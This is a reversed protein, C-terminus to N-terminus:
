GVTRGGRGHLPGVGADRLDTEVALELHALTEVAAHVLLLQHSCRENAVISPQNRSLERFPRWRRGNLRMGCGDGCRRPILIGSWKGMTHSPSQALKKRCSSPSPM